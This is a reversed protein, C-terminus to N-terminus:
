SNSFRFFVPFFQIFYILFTVSKNLTRTKYIYIYIYIYIHKMKIYINYVNVYQREHSVTCRTLNTIIFGILHLLKESKNKSHFKVHKPCNRKWDDPTKWEVCLVPIHWVPKNVAQSCSWYTENQHHVSFSDM